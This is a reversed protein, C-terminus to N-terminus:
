QGPAPYPPATAPVSIRFGNAQFVERFPTKTGRHEIPSTRNRWFSIAADPVEASQKPGWIPRLVSLRPRPSVQQFVQSLVGYECMYADVDIGLSAPHMGAVTQIAERPDPIAAPFVTFLMDSRTKGVVSRPGLIPKFENWLVGEVAFFTLLPTILVMLIRRRALWVALVPAATAVIPIHLRAHWPQWKLMIAFLLICAYPILFVPWAPRKRLRGPRVCLMMILGLALHVPAANNGDSNWTPQVSYKWNPPSTTRTDAENIGLRRHAWEVFRTEKFNTTIWPTSTHITMNRILNSAIARPAYTTNGLNFGGKSDPLGLPAQVYKINRAWHPTNLAAAALIMAIGLPVARAKTARLAAIGLFLCIPPAVIYATGKTLLLLGLTVGHLIADRARFERSLWIRVAGRLLILTWLAVVIDNKPNTAQTAAAPNMLAFIAALSQGLPGAGMDRAIASAALACLLYAVWQILNVQHDNGSLLMVQAGIFEALPPMELQRRDFCPYPAISHNEIWYVQRPLHYCLSDATTPPTLFATLGTFLLMAAAIALFAYNLTTPDPRASLTQWAPPHRRVRIALICAPVLWWIIAPWSSFGHFLSLLEAGVFAWLATWVAGRLLADRLDQKLTGAAARAGVIAILCLVILPLVSLM